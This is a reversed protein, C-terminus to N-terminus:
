AVTFRPSRIIFTEIPEDDVKSIWVFQNPQAQDIRDFLADFDEDMDVLQGHYIAVHKGLYHEKLWPHMTLYAQMEAEAAPEAQDISASISM